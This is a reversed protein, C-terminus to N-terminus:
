LFPLRTDERALNKTKVLSGSWKRHCSIENKSLFYLKRHCFYKRSVLCWNFKRTVMRNYCLMWKKRHASTKKHCSIMETGQLLYIEKVPISQKQFLLINRTFVILKEQISNKYPIIKVKLPLYKRDYALLKKGSAALTLNQGFSRKNVM